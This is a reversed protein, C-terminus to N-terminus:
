VRPWGGAFKGMIWLALLISRAYDFSICPALPRNGVLRPHGKSRNKRRLPLNPFSRSIGTVLAMRM